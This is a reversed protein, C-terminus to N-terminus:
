FCCPRLGSSCLCFLGGPKSAEQILDYCPRYNSLIKKSYAGGGAGARRQNFSGLKATGGGGGWCEVEVQTCGAPAIWSGSATFTETATAM